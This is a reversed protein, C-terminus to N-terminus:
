NLDIFLDIFPDIFLSRRISNKFFLFNKSGRTEPVKFGTSYAPLFRKEFYQWKRPRFRGQLKAMFINWDRNGGPLISSRPRFYKWQFANVRNLQFSYWSLTYMAYSDRFCIITLTLHSHTIVLSWSRNLGLFRCYKSFRTKGAYEVPKLTGSVRPLM